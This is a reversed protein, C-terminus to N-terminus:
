CGRASSAFFVSKKNQNRSPPQKRMWPKRTISIGQGISERMACGDNLTFERTYLSPAAANELQNNEREM